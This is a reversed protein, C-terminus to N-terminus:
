ETFTKASTKRLAELARKRVDAEEIEKEDISTKVQLLGATIMSTMASLSFGLTKIGEYFSSVYDKRSKLHNLHEEMKELDKEHKSQMFAEIDRALFKKGSKSLVDSADAYYENIKFKMTREYEEHARECDNKLTGYYALLAGQVKLHELYNDETLILMEYDPEDFQFKDFTYNSAKEFAENFRDYDM